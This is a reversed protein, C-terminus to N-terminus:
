FVQLTQLSNKQAARICDVFEPQPDRLGVSQLDFRHAALSQCIELQDQRSLLRCNITLHKLNFSCARLITLLKVKGVNGASLSRTEFTIHKGMNPNSLRHTRILQLADKDNRLSIHRYLLQQALNHVRKSVLTLNALDGQDLHELVELFIEPAAIDLFRSRHSWRSLM